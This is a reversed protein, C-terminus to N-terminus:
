MLVCDPLPAVIEEGEANQMKFVDNLERAAVRRVYARTQGIRAAGPNPPRKPFKRKFFLVKVGPPLLNQFDAPGRQESLCGESLSIQKFHPLCRLVDILRDCEFIELDIERLSLIKLNKLHLLSDILKSLGASSYQHEEVKIKLDVEELTDKYLWFLYCLLPISVREKVFLSSGAQCAYDAIFWRKDVFGKMLRSMEFSKEVVESLYRARPHNDHLKHIEQIFDPIGLPLDLKASSSFRCISANEYFLKDDINGLHRGIHYYLHMPSHIPNNKFFRIAFRQQHVNLVFQQSITELFHKLFPFPLNTPDNSFLHTLPVVFAWDRCVLRCSAQDELTLFTFIM